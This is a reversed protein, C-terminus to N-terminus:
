EGRAIRFGLAQHKDSPTTIGRYASRAFKEDYAWAGGRSVRNNVETASAEAGKPNTQSGSAYPGYIDWCWEWVNGHMDFLGNANPDKGCVERTKYEGDINTIFWGAADFDDPDGDCAFEWEAETPLRYGNKGWDATVTASTIPYGTAPTRNTITYVKDWDELDSLLNCFEVADYWTVTEVPYGGSDDDAFESPTDGTVLEYLSQTVTKSGLYFASISVERAVEENPFSSANSVGDMSLTGVAIPELKDLVVRVSVAKTAASYKGTNEPTYTMSYDNFGLKASGLVADPNDWEFTGDATGFSSISVTSLKDGSKGILGSPWSVTPSDKGSSSGPEKCASIAGASLLVIAILAASFFKTFNKM